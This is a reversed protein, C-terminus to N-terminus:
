VAEELYIGVHIIMQWQQTVGVIFMGYKPWERSKCKTWKIGVQLNPATLFCSSTLM